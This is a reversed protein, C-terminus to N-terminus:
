DETLLNAQLLAHGDRGRRLQHTAIRHAYKRPLKGDDETQAYERDASRHTLLTAIRISSTPRPVASTVSSFCAPSGAMPTLGSRSLTVRKPAM